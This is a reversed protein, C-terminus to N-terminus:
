SACATTEQSMESRLATALEQASFLDQRESESTEPSSEKISTMMLEKTQLQVRLKTEEHDLHQFCQSIHGQQVEREHLIRRYSVIHSQPESHMQSEVFEKDREGVQVIVRHQQLTHNIQGRLAERPESEIMQAVRRENEEMQIEQMMLGKYSESSEQM